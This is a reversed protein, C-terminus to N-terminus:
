RIIEPYTFGIDISYIGEVRSSIIEPVTRYPPLPERHYVAKIPSQYQYFAPDSYIVPTVLYPPAIIQVEDLTLPKRSLQCLYNKNREAAPITLIDFGIYTIRLFNGRDENSFNFKGYQDTETTNVVALDKLLTVVAFPLPQGSVSDVVQGSIGAQGWVRSCLFNLSFVVATISKM